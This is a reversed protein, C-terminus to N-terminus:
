RYRVRRDTAVRRASAHGLGGFQFRANLNANGDENLFPLLDLHICFRPLEGPSGSGFETARSPLAARAQNGSSLRTGWMESTKRSIHSVM